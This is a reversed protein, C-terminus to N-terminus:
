LTEMINQFRTNSIPHHSLIKGNYIICFTGFACPSRQAMESDTLDVLKAPLGMTKATELIADVNKVSYPCQPSRIVTLGKSYAETSPIKFKPDAADPNFKLALLEFDPKASDVQVFGKKLFIDKKAMFSGKRTVVAVGLMGAAKAEGIVEDLMLSGYGKGKFAAKFGVFICHIFMYGDAEVPRHAYKGHIYELMGQYGGSKSVLAKIRLGKPYYKIYWEIKRRLELHKEVDKYGCVGFESINDPTLNIISIDNTTPAPKPM